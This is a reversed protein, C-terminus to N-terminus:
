MAVDTHRLDLHFVLAAVTLYLLVQLASVTLRWLGSSFALLAVSTPTAFIPEIMDLMQDRRLTRAAGQVATTQLLMFAVNVVAYSFYSGRHGGFGLARSPAVLHSVFYLGAVSIIIGVWQMAFPIPLALDIRADRLFVALAKRM